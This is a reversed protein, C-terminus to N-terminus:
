TTVFIRSGEGELVSVDNISSGMLHILIRCQVRLEIRKSISPPVGNSAICFYAGIHKRSVSDITLSNGDVSPVSFTILICDFSSFYERNLSQSMLRHFRNKPLTLSKCFLSVRKLTKSNMTKDVSISISFFRVNWEYPLGASTTRPKAIWMRYLECLYNLFKFRLAVNKPLYHQWWIQSSILSATLGLLNLFM